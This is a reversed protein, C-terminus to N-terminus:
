VEPLFEIDGLAKKLDSAKILIALGRVGSGISVEVPRFAGQVALIRVPQALGLPGVAGIPYGTCELVERESALTLRSVGLYARLNPWSVQQPGAVLVLVFEGQALRFLLSRVVQEPLQGRDQAAQALSTPLRTHEFLRYPIALRDL